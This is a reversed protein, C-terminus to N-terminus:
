PSIGFLHPQNKKAAVKKKWKYKQLNIKGAPSVEIGEAELLKKQKRFNHTKAKFSIGGQSNIVRHWPLKYKTSCAHLIWSVGRAGHGNGALEAIQRYSAVKGAPIKLITKIVKVSFKSTERM